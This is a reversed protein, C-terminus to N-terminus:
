LGEVDGGREEDAAAVDDLRSPAVEDRPRFRRPVPDPVVRQGVRDLEARGVVRRDDRALDAVGLFRETLERRLLEEPRVTGAAHDPRPEEAAFGHAVEAVAAVRADEPV